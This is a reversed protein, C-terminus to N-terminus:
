IRDPTAPGGFCWTGNLTTLALSGFRAAAASGPTAAGAKAELKVRRPSRGSAGPRTGFEGGAIGVLVLNKAALPALTMSYGKRVDGIVIERIVAGTEADMAALRAELNVKYLRDGKAAL